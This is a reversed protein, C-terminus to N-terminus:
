EMDLSNKRKQSNCRLFDKNRERFNCTAFHLKRQIKVICEDIFILKVVAVMFLLCFDLFFKDLTRM